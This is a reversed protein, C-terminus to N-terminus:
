NKGQELIKENGKSKDNIKVKIKVKIKIKMNITCFNTLWGRCVLFLSLLYYRRTM